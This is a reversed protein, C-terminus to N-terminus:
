ITCVVFKVVFNGAVGFNRCIGQSTEIAMHKYHTQELKTM